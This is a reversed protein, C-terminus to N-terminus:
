NDGELSPYILPTTLAASVDCTSLFAGTSKYLSLLNIADAFVSEIYFLLLVHSNGAQSQM